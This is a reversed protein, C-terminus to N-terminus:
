NSTTQNIMWVRLSLCEDEDKLSNLIIELMMLHARYRFNTLEPFEAKDMSIELPEVQGLNLIYKDDTDSEYSSLGTLTKVTAVIFPIVEEKDTIEIM